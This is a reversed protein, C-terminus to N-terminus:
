RASIYCYAVPTMEGEGVLYANLLVRRFYILRMGGGITEDQEAFISVSVGPELYRAVLIDCM